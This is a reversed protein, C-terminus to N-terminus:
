KVRSSRASASDAACVKEGTKGCICREHYSRQVHSVFRGKLKRAHFRAEQRQAANRFPKNNIFCRTREVEATTRTDREM